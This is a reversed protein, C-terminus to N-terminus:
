LTKPLGLRGLTIKTPETLKLEPLRSIPVWEPNAFDDGEQLTLDGAPAPM